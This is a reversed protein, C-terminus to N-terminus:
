KSVLSRFTLFNLGSELISAQRFASSTTLALEGFFDGRELEGVCQEPENKSSAKM